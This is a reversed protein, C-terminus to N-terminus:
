SLPRVYAIHLRSVLRLQETTFLALFPQSLDNLVDVLRQRNARVEPFISGAHSSGDILTVEVHMGVLGREVADDGEPLRMGVIAIHSKQLLYADGSPLVLPLFPVDDNLLDLPEHESEVRALPPVFVDGDLRQGNALVVEVRRRVKEIRYDSM